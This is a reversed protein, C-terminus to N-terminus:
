GARNGAPMVESAFLDLSHSAEEHTLDGWQFASVFYNAGSEAGYREVYERITTPSGALVAEIKLATEFDFSAPGSTRIQEAASERIAISRVAAANWDAAPKESAVGSPLPKPFHSRYSAYAHEARELAEADTDALYVHKSAGCLPEDIVDAMATDAWGHEQWATRYVDLLKAVRRIPGACIYNMGRRAAQEPSGPWWFPPHPTQRPRLAMWLDQYDFHEGHFSLFESQLGQLLLDLTEEFRSDGENADGGWMVFEEGGSTGRGVGIELRGDSLQDVMCIEEILRIPHHLPLVYVLPGFRLRETRAAVASLFVAQNPALCLPSHHHEAVHYCYIGAADAQATLELRQRYQEGAPVDDRRELHDFIGFKM